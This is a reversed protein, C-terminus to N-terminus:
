DGVEVVVGLVEVVSVADELLLGNPERFRNVFLSLDFLTKVLLLPSVVRAVEVVDVVVGLGLGLFGTVFLDRGTLGENRPLPLLSSSVEDGAESPDFLTLAAGTKPDVDVVVGEGDVRDLNPEPDV